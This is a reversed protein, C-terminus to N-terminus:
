HSFGRNHCSHSRQGRESVCRSKAITEVLAAGWLSITSVIDFGLAPTELLECAQYGESVAVSVVRPKAVEAAM